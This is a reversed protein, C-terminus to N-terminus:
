NWITSVISKGTPDGKLMTEVYVPALDSPPEHLTGALNVEPLAEDRGVKYWRVLWIITRFIILASLIIEIAIVAWSTAKTKLGFGKEETLISDLTKDGKQLM